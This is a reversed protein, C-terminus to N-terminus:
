CPSPRFKEPPPYKSIIKDDPAERQWLLVQNKVAMTKASAMLDQNPYNDDYEKIWNSSDRMIPQLWNEDDGIERAPKEGKGRRRNRRKKGKKKKRRRGGEGEDEEEDDESEEEEEGEKNGDDEEGHGEPEVLAETYVLVGKCTPCSPDIQM